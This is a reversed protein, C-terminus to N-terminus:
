GFGTTWLDKWQALGRGMVGLRGMGRKAWIRAVGIAVVLWLLASVRTRWREWWMKALTLLLDRLRRRGPQFSPTAQSSRSLTPYGFFPNQFSTPSIHTPLQPIPQSSVPHPTNTFQPHGFGNPLPHNNLRLPDELDEIRPLDGGYEATYKYSTQVLFLRAEIYRKSSM